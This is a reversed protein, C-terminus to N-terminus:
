FQDEFQPTRFSWQTSMAMQWQPYPQDGVNSWEIPFQLQFRSDLTQCPLRCLETRLRQMAELCLAYGDTESTYCGVILDVTVTTVGREIVGKQARVVVFPVLDDSEGTKPPLYGDFIRVPQLEEAEEETEDTQETQVPLRLDKLATGVFAILAKTLNTEIM